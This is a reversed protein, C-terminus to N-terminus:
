VMWRMEPSSAQLKECSDSWYALSRGMRHHESDWSGTMLKMCETFWCIQLICISMSSRNIETSFRVNRFHHGRHAKWSGLNAFAVGNETNINEVTHWEQNGGLTEESFVEDNRALAQSHFPFILSLIVLFHSSM